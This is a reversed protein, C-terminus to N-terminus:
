KEQAVASIRGGILYAESSYYRSPSANSNYNTGHQGLQHDNPDMYTGTSTSSKNELNEKYHQQQQQQHHHQQQYHQGNNANSSRSKRGGGTNNSTICNSLSQSPCTQPGPTQTQQHYSGTGDESSM